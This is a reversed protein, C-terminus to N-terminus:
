VHQLKKTITRGRREARLALQHIEALDADTVLFLQGCAGCRGSARAHRGKAQWWGDTGPVVPRTVRRRTPGRYRVEIVGNVREAYGAVQGTGGKTTCVLRVLKV